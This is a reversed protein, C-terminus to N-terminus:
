NPSRPTRLASTPPELGGIEVLKKGKEVEAGGNELVLRLPSYAALELHREDDDWYRALPDSGEGHGLLRRAVDRADLVSGGGARVSRGLWTAFSARIDYPIADPMEEKVREAAFLRRVIGRIGQGGLPKGQHKGSGMESRFLPEEDSLYPLSDLLEQLKSLVEPLIPSPSREEKGTRHKQHRIIFGDDRAVAERVDGALLRVCEIPRWGMGFRLLWICLDRSSGALARQHLRILLDLSLPKGKRSDAKPRSRKPIPNRTLKGLDVAYDLLDKLSDFRNRRTRGTEGPFTENLWDRMTGWELPVMPFRNVFKGRLKLLDKLKEPRRAIEKAYEDFLWTSPVSASPPAAAAPFAMKPASFLDDSFMDYVDDDDYCDSIADCDPDDPHIYYWGPPLDDPPSIQRAGEALEVSPAAEALELPEKVQTEPRIKLRDPPNTHFLVAGMNGRRNNTNM